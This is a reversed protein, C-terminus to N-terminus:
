KPSPRLYITGSIFDIIASNLAIYEVGLLGAVEANTGRAVM